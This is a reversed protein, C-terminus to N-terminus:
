NVEIDGVRSKIKLIIDSKRDTNNIDIDGVKTSGEIYCNSTKRIEVDGVGSEVKSNKTINAKDVKVDGTKTYLDMYNGVSTIKIDGTTLKATINDVSSVKIDGTSLTAELDEINEIKVDGTSIKINAKKLSDAKIDGTSIVADLSAKNFSAIRIDGVKLNAKINNAYTSPILVRIYPTKTNFSFGRNKEELVVKITKDEEEISHNKAHDSYLEIKITDNDSEEIKIDVSNGNLDLDKISSFEKEEVLTTCYNSGIHIPSFNFKMKGNLVLVLGATLLGAVILLLTVLVITVTKNM